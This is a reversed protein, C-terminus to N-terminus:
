RGGGGVTVGVIWWEYCGVGSLSALCVKLLVETGGRREGEFGWVECKRFSAM